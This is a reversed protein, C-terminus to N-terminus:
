QIIFFSSNFILLAKETFILHAWPFVSFLHGGLPHYWTPGFAAFICGDPKLLERMTRLITAPDNFHEFSDIAIILDALETTQKTFICFNTVGNNEALERAKSLLGDQIDIGIVKRASHQAMAVAESGSGCGFDIVTKDKIERLFDEGLLKKIKSKNAYVSGDMYGTEGNVSIRKLIYLALRGGLIGM